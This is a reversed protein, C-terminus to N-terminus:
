DARRRHVRHRPGRGARYLDCRGRDRHNDHRQRQLTGHRQPHLVDRQGRPQVHYGIAAGPYVTTHGFVRGKQSMEEPGNLLSRVTIEGVGNFPAPKTVVQKEESKRVMNGIEKAFLFFGEGMRGAFFAGEQIVSAKRAARPPLGRIAEHIDEAKKMIYIQRM